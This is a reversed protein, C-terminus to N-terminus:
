DIRNLPLEIGSLAKPSKEQKKVTIQKIGCRQELNAYSLDIKKMLFSSIFHKDRFLEGTM